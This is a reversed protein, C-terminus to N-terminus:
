RPRLDLRREAIRLIFSGPDTLQAATITDPFSLGINNMYALQTQRVFHRLRDYRAQFRGNIQLTGRGWEFRLLYHLSESHMRIDWDDTASNDFQLADAAIDLVVVADLDDLRIRTPPLAGAASLAALAAADNKARLRDVYRRFEGQLDQAAASAVRDPKPATVAAEADRWARLPPGNDHAEGVRWCDGAFLVVPESDTAALAAVVHQPTNSARNLHFNEPSSFYVYSAFPVTWRAQFAAANGQLIRLYMGAVERSYDLDDANGVWSAFSFQTLLVDVPGCLAALQQAEATTPIYCDNINLLRREGAEVLLWSDSDRHQGCTVHIGDALAVRQQHPLELTQFGLRACFEVVKRDLTQQYLVTIGARREAPITQLDAPSFHDPHEHSYWLYNCDIDVLRLPSPVLLDWGHNFATGSLWPDCLLRVPGAEIRVCAHNVLQVDVKM